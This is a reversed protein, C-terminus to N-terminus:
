WSVEVSFKPCEYSVSYVSSWLQLRVRDTDINLGPPLVRHVWLSLQASVNSFIAPQKLGVRSSLYCFQCPLNRITRPM